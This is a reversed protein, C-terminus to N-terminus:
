VADPTRSLKFSQKSRRRIMIGTVTLVAFTSVGFLVAASGSLSRVFHGRKEPTDFSYCMSIPSVAPLDKALIAFEQGVIIAALAALLAIILSAMIRSLM